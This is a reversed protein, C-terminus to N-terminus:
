KLCDLCDHYLTTEIEKASEFKMAIFRAANHATDFKDYNKRNKQLNEVEKIQNIWNLNKGMLREKNGLTERIEKELRELNM